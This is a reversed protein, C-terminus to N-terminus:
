VLIGHNIRTLEGLVLDKGYSDKLLDMPKRNGLSFNATELWLKLKEMSGFVELGVKSVEAIEIIKESQIPRFSKSSQKYRHLTKTSLDLFESWYEETFPTFSQILDFLSYPVGERILSIMLMKNELFDTYTINNMQSTSHPILGKKKTINSIEKDLKNVLKATSGPIISPKSMQGYLYSM